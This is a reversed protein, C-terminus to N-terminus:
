LRWGHTSHTLAHFVFMQKQKAQTTSFKQFIPLFPKEM